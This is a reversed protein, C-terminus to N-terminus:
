FQLLLNKNKLRHWPPIDEKIQTLFVKTWKPAEVM